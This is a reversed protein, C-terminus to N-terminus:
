KVRKMEKWKNDLFVAAPDFNPNDSMIYSSGDSRSWAHDYGSNLEVTGTEDHYTEVERIAKVFNTHIRDQSQQSAEWSRMNADMNTLNQQGKRIANEGIQRTQEDLM